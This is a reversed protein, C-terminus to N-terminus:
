IHILSLDMAAMAVNDMIKVPKMKGREWQYDVGPVTDNFQSTNFAWLGGDNDIALTAGRGSTYVAAANTMLERAQEFPVAEEFGGFEQSGWTILTGDSRIAYYDQWGVALPSKAVPVELPAKAAAAPLACLTAFLALACLIPMTKKM